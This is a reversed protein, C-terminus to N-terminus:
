GEIAITGKNAPSSTLTLPPLVAEHLAINRAVKPCVRRARSWLPPKQVRQRVTEMRVTSRAARTPTPAHFSLPTVTALSLAM